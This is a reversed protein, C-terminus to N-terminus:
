REHRWVKITDELAEVAGLLDDDESATAIPDLELRRSVVIDIVVQAADELDSESKTRNTM